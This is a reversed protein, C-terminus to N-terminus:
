KQPTKLFVITGIIEENMDYVTVTLSNTIVGKGMFWQTHWMEDDFATGGEYDQLENCEMRYSREHEDPAFPFSVHVGMPTISVEAEGVQLGQVSGPNVPTLVFTEHEANQLPLSFDLQEELARGETWAQVTFMAETKAPKSNRHVFILIKMEGDSIREFHLTSSYKTNTEALGIYCGAFLLEKHQATAYEKLTQDGTLGIVSVSDNPNADMPVVVYQNRGEVLICAMISVNDNLYETVRAGWTDAEAYSDPTGVMNEAGNPFARGSSHMMERISWRSVAFVAASLVFAACVVAWAFRRQKSRGPKRKVVNGTKLISPKREYYTSAEDILDNDIQNLAESVLARNM